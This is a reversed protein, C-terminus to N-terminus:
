IYIYIILKENFEYVGQLEKVFGTLSVNINLTPWKM